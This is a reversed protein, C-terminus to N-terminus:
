PQPELRFKDLLPRAAALPDSSGAWQYEVDDIRKRILGPDGRDSGLSAAIISVAQDFDAADCYGHVARVVIGGMAATWPRGDKKRLLGRRSWSIDSLDVSVGDETVSLLQELNLTPLVLLPGGPGDIVIDDIEDPVVHWGCYRRALALATDTM